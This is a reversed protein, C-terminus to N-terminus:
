DDLQNEREIYVENLITVYEPRKDFKGLLRPHDTMEQQQTESKSYIYIVEQIIVSVELLDM